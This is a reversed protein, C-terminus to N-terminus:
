DCSCRMEWEWIGNWQTATGMGNWRVKTDGNWTFDSSPLQGGNVTVNSPASSLGYIVIQNLHANAAGSYGSAEVRSM